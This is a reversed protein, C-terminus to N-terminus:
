TMFRFGPFFFEGYFTVTVAIDDYGASAGSAHQIPYIIKQVPMKAYFPQCRITFINWPFILNRKRNQIIMAFRGKVSSNQLGFLMSFIGQGAPSPTGAVKEVAYRICERHEEDTLTSSEGTTGCIVIADTSNAIQFEIIKGLQEYNVKNDTFPTVIAFAAGTFVIPKTFNSM